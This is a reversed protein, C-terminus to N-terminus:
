SLELLRYLHDDTSGAPEFRGRMAGKSREKEIANLTTHSLAALNEPEHCM